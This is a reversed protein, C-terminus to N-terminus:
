AATLFFIAMYEGAFNSSLVEVEEAVREGVMGDDTLASMQIPHFKM